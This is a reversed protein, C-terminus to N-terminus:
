APPLVSDRTWYRAMTRLASSGSPKTVYSNGGREYTAEVDEDRDSSSLVVVPITSLEPDDKMRALVELGDVKPMRIDLLVLHPRERDAYAGRRYVFDLAQAGDSVGEIELHVGEVDRLARVTLFLHDENDDAVLVRVTRELANV